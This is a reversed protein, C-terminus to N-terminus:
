SMYEKYREQMVTIFEDEGVFKEMTVRNKNHLLDPLAFLYKKYAEKFRNDLEESFLWDSKKLFSRLFELIVDCCLMEYLLKNASDKKIFAAVWVNLSHELGALLNTKDESFLNEMETWIELQLRGFSADKKTEDTM